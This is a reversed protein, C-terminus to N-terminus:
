RPVKRAKTRPVRAAFTIRPPCPTVAADIAAGIDAADAGSGAASNRKDGLISSVISVARTSIQETATM